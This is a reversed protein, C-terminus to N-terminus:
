LSIRMSVKNKNKKKFFHACFIVNLSAKQLLITVVGMHVITLTHLPWITLAKYIYVCVNIEVVETWKLSSSVSAWDNHPLELIGM